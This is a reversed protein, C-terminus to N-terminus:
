KTFYMLEVPIGEEEIFAITLEDSCQIPEVIVKANKLEEELNEVEYAIHPITQISEPMWSGEQFRLYEIRNPSLTYDTLWVKLGEALTEGPQSTTTPIGFHNIKRM